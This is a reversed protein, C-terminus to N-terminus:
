KIILPVGLDVGAGVGSVFTAVGVFCGRVQFGHAPPVASRTRTTTTTSAGRARASQDAGSSSSAAELAAGEELLGSVDADGLDDADATATMAGVSLAGAAELGSTGARSGAVDGSGRAAVEATM